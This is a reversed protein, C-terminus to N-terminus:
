GPHPGAWRVSRSWGVGAAPWRLASLGVVCPLRGHECERRRLLDDPQVFLHQRAAAGVVEGGDEVQPAGEVARRQVGSQGGDQAVVRAQSQLQHGVRLPQGTLPDDLATLRLQAVAVEAGLGVRLGGEAPQQGGLGLLRHVGLPRRQQAPVQDPDGLVVVPQDVDLVVEDVVAVGERDQQAVEEGDVAGVDEALRVRQGGGGRVLLVRAGGGVGGPVASEVEPGLLQGVRRTFDRQGPQGPGAGLAAVPAPLQALRDAGVQGCPQAFAAGRVAVGREARQEGQEGFQQAPVAPVALQHDAGGDAVARLAEFAGDAHEHVGHRQAQPEVRRGGPGLGHVLRGVDQQARQRVLVQGHLLQGAAQSQVGAAGVVRQEVDHEARM